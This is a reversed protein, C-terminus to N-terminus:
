QQASRSAAECLGDGGSKTYSAPKASARSTELLELESCSIVLKRGKNEQVLHMWLNLLSNLIILLHQYTWIRILFSNLTETSSIQYSISISLGWDVFVFTLRHDDSLLSVITTRPGRWISDWTLTHYVTILHHTKIDVKFFNTQDVRVPCNM